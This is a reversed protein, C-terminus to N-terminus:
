SLNVPVQQLDSLKWDSGVRNMTASFRNRKTTAKGGAPTVTVEVSAIVTASGARDDLQTVAADIVKGSTVTKADSISTKDTASVQSIQDHLSGTSAGLWSQLGADVNQYNLTNLVVIDQRAALAVTDRSHAFKLSDDHDAHWWSVFALVGFIVAAVALLACGITLLGRRGRPPDTDTAATDVADTVTGTGDSTPTDDAPTDTM